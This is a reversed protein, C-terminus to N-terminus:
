SEFSSEVNHFIKNKGIASLRGKGQFEPHVRKPAVLKRIKGLYTISAKSGGVSRYSRSIKVTKRGDKIKDDPNANSGFSKVVSSYSSVELLSDDPKECDDRRPESSHLPSCLGRVMSDQKLSDLDAAQEYDHSARSIEFENIERSSNLFSLSQQVFEHSLTIKSRQFSNTSHALEENSELKDNPNKTPDNLDTIDEVMSEFFPKSKSNKLLKKDDGGFELRKKRISELKRKRYNLLEEDEDDSLELELSHKRRKRFGGTKIDHLIKNVAKLDIDKNEAMLLQRIQDANTTSHSFDDIMKELDSDYEDIMEGDAGGIGRWEDDSEEAEMDFVKTIGAEKMREMRQKEEQAEVKRRERELVRYQAEQSKTDVHSIAVDASSAEDSRNDVILNGGYAGLNIASELAPQGKEEYEEEESEDDSVISIKHSKGRKLRVSDDDSMDGKENDFATQRDRDNPGDNDFTDPSEGISSYYDSDPYASDESESRDGDPESHPPQEDGRMKLREKMRIRKNRAIEQELLNEVIEKEKEVDEVKLGQREIMEKQHDLIQKKASNKLTKMLATLSSKGQQSEMPPKQKSLRAKLKLVSAKSEHSAPLMAEEESDSDSLLVVGEAFQTKEKLERQYATLAGSGEQMVNESNLAENASISDDNPGAPSVSKDDREFLDTDSDSTNDFDELFAEKTFVKVARPLREESKYEESIKKVKTLERQVKHIHLEAVPSADIVTQQIADRRSFRQPSCVPLEVDTQTPITELMPTGQVHSVIAAKTDDLYFGHNTLEDKPNKPENAPDIVQTPIDISDLSVESIHQTETIAASVSTGRVSERTDSTSIISVNHAGSHPRNESTPQTETSTSLVSVEQAPGRTDHARSHSQNDPILQTETSTPSVPMERVPEKTGHSSTSSQNEPILQTETMTPPVLDKKFSGRRNHSGTASADVTKIYSQDEKVTAKRRQRQLRTPTRTEIPKPEIRVAPRVEKELDEANDYLKSLAQTLDIPQTEQEQDKNLRNKVKDVTSNDFLFGNGVVTPPSQSEENCQEDENHLVKRYTARRKRIVSSFGDFLQDM